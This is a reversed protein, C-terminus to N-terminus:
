GTGQSFAARVESDSLVVIAWIGFPLGLLCCPSICPIMALISATMALGYSELNKMRIGGILVVMSAVIAVLGVGVMAVPQLGAPPQQGPVVGGLQVLNGLLGLVQLALGLGGTVILGIAPASVRSAASPGEVLPGVPSAFPNDSPPAAQAPGAFPSGTALEPVAIIAGCVPCKAQRGATEDPTRLLKDCQTCRFEIPM